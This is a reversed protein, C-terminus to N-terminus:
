RFLAKVDGWRSDYTPTPDPNVTFSAMTEGGPYPHMEREIIETGSTGGVDLYKPFDGEVPSSHKTIYFQAPESDLPVIIFTMLLNVDQYPFAPHGVAFDPPSSVTLAGPTTINWGWVTVNEPVVLRCAWGGLFRGPTANTLLLYVEMPTGAELEVVNSLGGQDSYIGVLDVDADAVASGVLITLVALTMMLIKM